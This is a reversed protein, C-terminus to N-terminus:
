HTSGVVRAIDGLYGDASPRLCATTKNKISLFLSFADPLTSSASGIYFMEILSRLSPSLFCYFHFIFICISPCLFLNLFLLFHDWIVFTSHQRDDHFIEVSTTVHQCKLIVQGLLCKRFSNFRSKREGTLTICFIIPM